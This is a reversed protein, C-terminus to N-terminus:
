GVTLALTLGKYNGNIREGELASDRRILGSVSAPIDEIAATGVVGTFVVFVLSERTEILRHYIEQLFVTLYQGEQIGHVRQHIMMHLPEELSTKVMQLDSEATGSTLMARDIAGLMQRCVEFLFVVNLDFEDM